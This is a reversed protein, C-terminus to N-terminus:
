PRGGISLNKETLLVKSGAFIGEDRFEHGEGLYLKQVDKKLFFREAM